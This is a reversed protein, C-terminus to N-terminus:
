FRSVNFLLKELGGFKNQSVYRLSISLLNHRLMTSLLCKVLEIYGNGACLILEVNLSALLSPSLKPTLCYKISKCSAFGAVTIILTRFDKM